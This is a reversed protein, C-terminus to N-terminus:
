ATQLWRSFEDAVDADPDPEDALAKFGRGALLAAQKKSWGAQHLFGEFDRITRISKVSSIVAAEDAPLATLSIEYLAIESLHRVGAVYREKAARYGISLAKVIRKKLRSYTERGITTDLDLAGRCELGM